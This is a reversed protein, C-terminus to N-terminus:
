IKLKLGVNPVLRSNTFDVSFCNVFFLSLICRLRCHLGVLLFKVSFTNHINIYSFIKHFEFHRMKRTLIDEFFTLSFDCSCLMAGFNDDFVSQLRKIKNSYFIHCVLYNKILM